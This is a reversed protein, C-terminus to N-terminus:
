AGSSLTPTATVSVMSAPRVKVRQTSPDIVGGDGQQGLVGDREAVLDRKAIQGFALGHQFVAMVDAAGDRRDALAPMDM